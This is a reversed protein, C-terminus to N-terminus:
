YSPLLCVLTFYLSTLALSIGAIALITSLGGTAVASAISIGIAAIAFLIALAKQASVGCSTHPEPDDPCGNNSAPGHLGPCADACNMVNDGDDDVTCPDPPLPGVGTEATVSMITAFFFTILTTWRCTTAKASM